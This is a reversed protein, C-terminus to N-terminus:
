LKLIYLTYLTMHYDMRKSLRCNVRSYMPYSKYSAFKNYILARFSTEIQTVADVSIYRKIIENNNTM